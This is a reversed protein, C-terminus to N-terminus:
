GNLRKAEEVNRDWVEGFSQPHKERFDKEIVERRSRLGAAKSVRHMATWLEDDFKLCRNKKKKHNILM